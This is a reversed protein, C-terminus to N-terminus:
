ENSLIDELERIMMATAGWITYNNYVYAPVNFQHSKRKITVEKKISPEFLSSLKVFFTEEVEKTDMKIEPINDTIGIYPTVLSKSPPIYLPSLSGIIEIDNQNIGVEENAERLATHELSLDEPESKGGPFAVQNSHVGDYSSRLILLTNWELEMQFLLVLVASIRTDPYNLAESASPRVMPAMKRHSNEGPLEKALRNKLIEAIEMM